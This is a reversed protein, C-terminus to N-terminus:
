QYQSFEQLFFLPVFGAKSLAGSIANQKSHDTLEPRVVLSVDVEM